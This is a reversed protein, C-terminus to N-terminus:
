SYQCGFFALSLGAEAIARAHATEGLNHAIRAETRAEHALGTFLLALVAVAGIVILIAFGGERDNKKSSLHISRRLGM